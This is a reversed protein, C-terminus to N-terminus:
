EKFSRPGGVFEWNQVTELPIKWAYTPDAKWHYEEHDLYFEATIYAYAETWYLQRLLTEFQFIWHELYGDFHNASMAFPIMQNRYTIQDRPSVGPLKFMSADFISLDESGLSNLPPLMSMVDQNHQMVFGLQQGYIFGGAIICGFVYGEHGM